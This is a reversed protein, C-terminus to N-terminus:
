ACIGKNLEIQALVTQMEAKSRDAYAVARIQKSKIKGDLEALIGLNAKMPQFDNASAHTIYKCLAGIMTSPTMELLPQGLLSFAANM